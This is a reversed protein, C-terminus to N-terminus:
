AKGVESKGTNIWHVHEYEQLTTVKLRAELGFRDQIYDLDAPEQM